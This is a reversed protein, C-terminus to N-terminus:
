EERGATRYFGPSPKGAFGTLFKCMVGDIPGPKEFGLIHLLKEFGQQQPGLLLPPRQHFGCRAQSPAHFDM